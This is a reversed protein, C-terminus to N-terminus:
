LYAGCCARKRFPQQLTGTNRRRLAMTHHFAGFVPREGVVGPFAQRRVTYRLSASPADDVGGDCLLPWSLTADNQAAGKRWSADTPSGNRDWFAVYEPTYQSVAYLMAKRVAEAKGGNPQIDYYMLREHRACLQQLVELTNDRSGDNAFLFAVDENQEVFSLFEDQHLRKSENYCPVVVITKM